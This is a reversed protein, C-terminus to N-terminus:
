AYEINKKTIKYENQPAAIRYKPVVKKKGIFVEFVNINYSTLGHEKMKKKISDLYKKEANNM